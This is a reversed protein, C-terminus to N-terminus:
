LKLIYDSLREGHPLNMKKHIRHKAMRLSIETVGLLNIIENSPINLRLLSCLRIQNATLTPCVATLKGIFESNLENFHNQFAVWDKDKRSSIKLNTRLERLANQTREDSGAEIKDTIEEINRLYEQTQNVRLSFSTLEKNKHEVEQTKLKIEAALRAKEIRNIKQRYRIYLYGGTLFLFFLGAGVYRQTNRKQREMAVAHQHKAELLEKEKERTIEAERQAITREMEKNQIKEQLTDLVKKAEYATEWDGKAEALLVKAEFFSKRDTLSSSEPVISELENLYLVATKFEEQSVAIRILGMLIPTRGRDFRNERAMSLGELWLRQANEVDGKNYYANALNNTSVVTQYLDGNEVCLQLSKEFYYIASDMMKMSGYCAGINSLVKQERRSNGKALPLQLHLYHLGEAYSGLKFYMLALKQFLIVKMDSDLEKEERLIKQLDEYASLYDGEESKIGTINIVVKIYLRKNGSKEAWEKQQTLYHKAQKINGKGYHYIAMNGAVKARVEALRKNDETTGKKFEGKELHKLDKSIVGLAQKSLLLLSDLNSDQYYGSLLILNEAKKIPSQTKQIIRKLSDIAPQNQSLGAWVMLSCIGLLSIFKVKSGGLIQRM